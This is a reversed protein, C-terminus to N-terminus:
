GRGPFLISTLYGFMQRRKMSQSFTPLTPPKDSWVADGTKGIGTQIILSHQEKFHAPLDPMAFIADIEARSTEEKLSAVANSVRLIMAKNRWGRRDYIVVDNGERDSTWILHRKCVCARAATAGGFPRVIDNCDLCHLAKV